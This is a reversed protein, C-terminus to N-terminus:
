SPQHKTRSLSSTRRCAAPLMPVNPPRGRNREMKQRGKYGAGAFM